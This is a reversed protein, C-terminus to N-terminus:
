NTYYDTSSYDRKDYDGYGQINTDGSSIDDESECDELISTITDTTKFQKKIRDMTVLLCNYLSAFQRIYKKAVEGDIDLETDHNDDLFANCDFMPNDYMLSELTKLIVMLKTSYNYFERIQDNHWGVFMVDNSIRLTINALLRKGLLYHLYLNRYTHYTTQYM